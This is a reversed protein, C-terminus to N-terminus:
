DKSRRRRGACRWLERHDSNDRSLDGPPAVLQWLSTQLHSRESTVRNSGAVPVAQECQKAPSYIGVNM